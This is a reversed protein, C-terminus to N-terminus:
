DAGIIEDAEAQTLRLPVFAQVQETTLKGLAYQIQIFKKFM